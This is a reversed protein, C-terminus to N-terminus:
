QREGELDKLHAINRRREIDKAYKLKDEKNMQRAARIDIDLSPHLEDQRIWLANWWLRIKYFKFFKFFRNLRDMRKRRKEIHEIYFVQQSHNLKRLEKIDITLSEDSM